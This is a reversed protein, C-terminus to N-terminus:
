FTSVSNHNYEYSITIKLIRFNSFTTSDDFHNSKILLINWYELITADFWRLMIFFCFCKCCWIYLMCMIKSCDQWWFVFIIIIIIILISFILIIHFIDSMSGLLRSSHCQSLWSPLVFHKRGKYFPILVIYMCHCLVSEIWICYVHGTYYTNQKNRTCGSVYVYALTVNVYWM